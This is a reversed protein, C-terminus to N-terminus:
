QRLLKKTLPKEILAYIGAAWVCIAATFVFMTLYSHTLKMGAATFVTLFLGYLPVHWLYVEFSIAGATKVADSKLQPLLLASLIMAPFFFYTLVYWSSLGLILFGAATLAWLAIDTIFVSKGTRHQWYRCLTCGTFFSGYGRINSIRFLPVDSIGHTVAYYAPVALM